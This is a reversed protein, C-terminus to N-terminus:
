YTYGPCQALTRLRRQDSEARCLHYRWPLSNLYGMLEIKESLSFKIPDTTKRDHSIGYNEAKTVRWARWSCSVDETCSIPCRISGTEVAARPSAAWSPCLTSTQDYIGEDRRSKSSFGNKRNETKHALGKESLERLSATGPSGAPWNSRDGSQPMPPGPRWTGQGGAASSWGPGSWSGTQTRGASAKRQWPLRPSDM